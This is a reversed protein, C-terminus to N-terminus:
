NLNLHTKLFAIHALNLSNNKTGNRNIKRKNRNWSRITFCAREINVNKIILLISDIKDKQYFGKIFGL